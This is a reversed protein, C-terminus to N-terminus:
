QKGRNFLNNILNELNEITLGSEVANIFEPITMKLEDSLMKVADPFIETLERIDQMKLICEPNRKTEVILDGEFNIETEVILVHPKNGLRSLVECTLWTNDAWFNKTVDLSNEKSQM